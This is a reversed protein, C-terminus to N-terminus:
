NPKHNVIAYPRPDDNNLNNKKIAEELQNKQFNDKFIFGMKDLTENPVFMEAIAELSISFSHMKMLKISRSKFENKLIKKESNIAFLLTSIKDPDEFLYIQQFVESFTKLDNLKLANSPGYLNSVLVGEPALISKITEYFQLTKLHFPVSGSKFADLIIFDYKVKGIVSQIFLRGDAEHTKLHETEKLFFFKKSVDIVGKDVDVADIKASPFYYSFYNPIIGGGIGIILIQKPSPTFFLGALLLQSYTMQPTILSKISIRSQLFYDKSGKFWLERIDGYEIVVIYNFPTKKKYIIKKKPGM